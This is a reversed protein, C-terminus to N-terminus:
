QASLNPLALDKPAITTAEVPWTIRLKPDDYRIGRAAEPAYFNSIVYHVSTDDELTVFGHAFGAPAHLARGSGARLEVAFWQHRTASDERLDVIVDWFAGSLCSITKAEAHPAAQYHLGRLTGRKANYSVSIQAVKADLRRAEFETACFTRAFYGRDDSFRQQEIVFAGALPTAQFIM